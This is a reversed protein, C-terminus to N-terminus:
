NSHGRDGSGSDGRVSNAVCTLVCRPDVFWRVRESASVSSEALVSEGGSSMTDPSSSHTLRVVDYQTSPKKEGKEEQRKKRERLLNM